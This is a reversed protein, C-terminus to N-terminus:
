KMLSFQLSLLQNFRPEQKCMLSLLKMTTAIVRLSCNRSALRRIRPKAKPGIEVDDASSKIEWLAAIVPLMMLIMRVKRLRALHRLKKMVSIELFQQM